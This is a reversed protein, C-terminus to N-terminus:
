QAEEEYIADASSEDERGFNPRSTRSLIGMVRARRVCRALERQKKACVNSTRRTKIHGAETVYRCIFAATLIHAM